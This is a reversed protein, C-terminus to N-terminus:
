DALRVEPDFTTMVNAYLSISELMAPHKKLERLLDAAAADSTSAAAELYDEVLDESGRPTEGPDTRLEALRVRAMAEQSSHTLLVEALWRLESRPEIFAERLVWLSIAEVDAADTLVGVSRSGLVLRRWTQMAEADRGAALFAATEHVMWLHRESLGSPFAPPASIRLGLELLEGRVGDSLGFDAGPQWPLEAPATSPAELKPSLRSDSDVASVAYVGTPAAPIRDAASVQLATASAASEPAMFLTGCVSVMLGVRCKAPNMTCLTAFRRVISASM